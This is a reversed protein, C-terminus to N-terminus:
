LFVYDLSEPSSKKKKKILIASYKHPFIPNEGLYMPLVSVCKDEFKHSTNCQQYLHSPPLRFGFRKIERNGQSM